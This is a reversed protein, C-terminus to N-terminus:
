DVRRSPPGTQYPSVQLVFICQLVLTNREIHIATTTPTVRNMHIQEIERHGIKGVLLNEERGVLRVLSNGSRQFPIINGGIDIHHIIRVQHRISLRKGVHHDVVLRFQGINLPSGQRYQRGGLPLTDYCRCCILWLCARSRGHLLLRLRFLGTNGILRGRRLPSGNLPLGGPLIFWALLLSGCHLYGM